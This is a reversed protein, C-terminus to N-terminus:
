STGALSTVDRLLEDTDHELGFYRKAIRGDPDLLYTVVVHEIEGDPKAITGVGYSEVVASVDPPPGTLFSWGALDAGRASAYRRLAEPTDRAPDLSVSVLRVRAREAEPLAKQLAVHKSTLIPCPGPCSTYVFDLLVVRGHLSALTVPKGDQDTLAFDPAPDRTPAFGDAIPQEKCAALCSLLLALRAAKV